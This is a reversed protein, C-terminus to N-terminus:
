NSDMEEDDLPATDDGGEDAAPQSGLNFLLRQFADPSFTVTGFNPSSAIVHKDDWSQLEMTVSGRDAFYARVDNANKKPQDAGVSSMDIQEIRDLPITLDAYSSAFVAKGDAISKLKGSVRDSNAMKISDEKQKGADAAAEDPKGDWTTVKINSVKAYMGQQSSFIMKTGSGAFEGPDTWQKLLNGNVYLWITKTAKNVKIDFHLKDSRMMAGRLMVPQQEGIMSMGNRSYRQLYVYNNNIQFMYCNGINEVQDCYICVSLQNQGRSLLDFSISSADPLKMDRGITGYSTAILAGDRYSWSKARNGNNGLTWGEMGTPGEYLTGAGGKLPTIGKVMSRPITIKGAYWTDLILSKDDLTVLTGPLVDGNTLAIAQNPSPTNAPPKHSDLKVETVNGTQFVIPDKSEVSKWHVGDKDFSLFAGHLTDKNSFRLLDPTAPKDPTSTDGPKPPTTPNTPATSDQPSDDLIIGARAPGMGLDLALLVCCLYVPKIHFRANM